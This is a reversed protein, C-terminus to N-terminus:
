VQTTEIFDIKAKGLKQNERGYTNTRRCHKDNMERPQPSPHVFHEGVKTSCELTDRALHARSEIVADARQLFVLFYVLGM